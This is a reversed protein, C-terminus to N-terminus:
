RPSNQFVAGPSQAPMKGSLHAMFEICSPYREAVDAKMARTIVAVVVDSLTPVLQRPPTYQDWAKKKFITLAPGKTFFPIIGTVMMYLTAGLAYIDCRADVNKANALQEPAMFHPTGLGRGSDTIDGDTHLDKAIGLDTLKAQGDPGILVNDPKLDRHYIGHEHAEQLAEAVQTILAIAEGEPLAGRREIIDGLSEGEVFEMVFYPPDANLDCEYGRVIHPHNLRQTITFERKFRKLLVEEALVDENVIKIAVIQGTTRHRGKYVIGAAGEGIKQVLDYNGVKEPAKTEQVSM